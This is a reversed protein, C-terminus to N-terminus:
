DVNTIIVHPIVVFPHRVNRVYARGRNDFQYNRVPVWIVSTTSGQVVLCCAHRECAMRKVAFRDFFLAKFPASRDCAFEVVAIYSVESPDSDLHHM